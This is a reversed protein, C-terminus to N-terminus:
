HLKNINIKNNIIYAFRSLTYKYIMNNKNIIHTLM